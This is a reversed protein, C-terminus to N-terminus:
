LKNQSPTITEKLNIKIEKFNSSNIKKLWFNKFEFIRAKDYGINIENENSWKYSLNEYHDALFIREDFFNRTKNQSIHLEITESTTAGCDKKTSILYLTGSPSPLFNEENSCSLSLTTKLGIVALIVLIAALSVSIKLTRSM